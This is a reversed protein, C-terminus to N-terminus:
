PGRGKREITCALERAIRAFLEEWDGLKAQRFLRMTPYWPCDPRDMWALRLVRAAGGVGARRPGGALNVVATDSSIVLDLNRMVAATEMFAGGEADFDSGFDVVPCDAAVAALQEWGPGKQLSFLTVGPVRALPTFHRLPM